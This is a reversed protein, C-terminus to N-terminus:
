NYHNLSKLERYRWAVKEVLNDRTLDPAEIPLLTLNIIKSNLLLHKLRTWVFPSIQGYALLGEVHTLLDQTNAELEWCWSCQGTAEYTSDHDCVHDCVICEGDIVSLQGCRNCEKM